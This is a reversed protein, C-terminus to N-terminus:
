RLNLFPRKQGSDSGPEVGALAMAILDAAISRIFDPWAVGAPRRFLRTSDYWPSDERHDQWRWDYHKPPLLLACPVGMAGAMHAVASDIAIVLDMEAVRRAAALFPPGGAEPGEGLVAGAPLGAIQDLGDGVQLSVCTLDKMALLSAFASLPISRAADNRHSPNGQWVLGVVPRSASTVRRGPALYPAARLADESVAGTLGALSAMACWCQASSPFTAGRVPRFVDLGLAEALAALRSSAAVQVEVGDAMLRRAFRAFQITDGAGQEAFVLLSEPRPEGIRWRPLDADAGQSRLQTFPLLHFAELRAEFDLWGEAWRGVRLRSLGRAYLLLSDGPRAALAHEFAAEALDPAGARAAFNAVAASMRGNALGRDTLSRYVEAVAALDESVLAESLARGHARRVLDLDDPM